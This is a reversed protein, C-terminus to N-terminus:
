ADNVCIRMLLVMGASKMLIRFVAVHVDAKAFGDGVALDFGGYVLTGIGQTLQAPAQAHRALAAFAADGGTFDQFLM